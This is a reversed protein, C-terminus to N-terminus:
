PIIQYTFHYCVTRADTGVSIWVFEMAGGSRASISVSEVAVGKPAATGGGQTEDAFSSAVPISLRFSTSTAPLTPTINSIVGSVTVTDGVRLWQADHMGDITALNVENTAVPTYVGSSTVPLGAVAADILAQVQAATQKTDAYEKVAQQTPAKLDSNAALTGDTDAALAGATGAYSFRIM